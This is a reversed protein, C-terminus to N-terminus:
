LLDENNLSMHRNKCQDLFCFVHNDTLKYEIYQKPSRKQGYVSSDVAARAGTM